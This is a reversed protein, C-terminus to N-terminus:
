DTTLWMQCKFPHKKITHELSIIEVKKLDTTSIELRWLMYQEVIQSHFSFTPSCPESFGSLIKRIFKPHDFKVLCSFYDNNCFERTNFHFEHYWQFVTIEFDFESLM